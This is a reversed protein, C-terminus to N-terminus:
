KALSGGLFALAVWYLTGNWVCFQGEVSLFWFLYWPVFPLFFFSFGLFSFSIVGFRFKEMPGEQLVEGNM